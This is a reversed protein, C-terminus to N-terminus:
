GASAPRREHQPDDRRQRESERGEEEHRRPRRPRWRTSCVMSAALCTSSSSAYAISSACPRTCSACGIRIRNTPPSPYRHRTKARRSSTPSRARARAWRPIRRDRVGRGLHETQRGQSLARGFSVWWPSRLAKLLAAGSGTPTPSELDRRAADMANQEFTSLGRQWSTSSGASERTTSWTLCGQGGDGELRVDTAARNGCAEHRDRSVRGPGRCLRARLSADVVAITDPSDAKADSSAGAVLRTLYDVKRKAGYIDDNYPGFRDEAAYAKRLREADSEQGMEYMRATLETLLSRSLIQLHVWLGAKLLADLKKPVDGNAKQDVAECLELLAKEVDYYPSGSTSGKKAQDSMRKKSADVQDIADQYWKGTAAPAPTRQVGHLLGVSNAQQVVHTLEHALLRRGGPAQPRFANAAFVISTGSTYALARVAQASGAAREDTHVRVRGFDYGFRSEMFSRTDTDLGRGLGAVSHTVAPLLRPLPRRPRAEDPGSMVSDAVRDAEREFADGAPRVRSAVSRQAATDAVPKAVLAREAM